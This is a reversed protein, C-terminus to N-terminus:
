ARKCQWDQFEPNWHTEGRDLALYKDGSRVKCKPANMRQPLGQNNMWKWLVHQLTSLAQEASSVPVYFPHAASRLCCANDTLPLSDPSSSGLVSGRKSFTVRDHFAKNRKESRDHKKLCCMIGLLCEFLTARM